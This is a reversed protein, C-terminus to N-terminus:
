DKFRDQQNGQQQRNQQQSLWRIFFVALPGAVVGILAWPWPKAGKAKALQFLIFACFLGIFFYIAFVRAM